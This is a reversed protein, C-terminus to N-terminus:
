SMTLNCALRELRGQIHLNLFYPSRRSIKCVLWVLALLNSYMTYNVEATLTVEEVAM